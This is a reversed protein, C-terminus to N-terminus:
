VLTLGELNMNTLSRSIHGDKKLILFGQDAQVLMYYDNMGDGYAIVKKGSTQLYKTIYLKTEAAMEPGFFFMVGLENAIYRWVKEHGSTLIYTDSNIANKVKPHFHIPMETIEPITFTKFEENQKWAQYGTYFNGDYLNTTYGFLTNSTDELSLTKDGDVLRIEKGQCHQLIIDSCRKAYAACSYGDVIDRIFSLTMGVDPYENNPPNDIVYFDKNHKHCYNRLGSIERVQWAEIDFRLYKRNKESSAMRTRLVAPSIFLYLFVDYLEGDEETFVTENGFAYHGDMIFTEKKMMQKAVAKRDKERGYEDRSDFEPDYERLLNSGTFVEIFDICDMIYTKGATPLGYLGIRM